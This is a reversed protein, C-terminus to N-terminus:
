AISKILLHEKTVSEKQYKEFLEPYDEKFKKSDFSKKSTELVRTISLRDTKYSKDGNEQMAKLVVDNFKEKFAKIEAELRLYELMAGEYDKVVALGKQEPKAILEEGDAYAQLMREVEPKDLPNIRIMQCSYSHKNVWAVYLEKVERGTQLEFLYKYVSLQLRWEDYHVDSTTKIDGLVINGENDTYVLDIASAINKEDSVLFEAIQPVLGLKAEETRQSLCTDSEFGELAEFQYQKHYAKGTEAARNLMEEDVGDYTHYVANVLPTVGKLQRGGLTYIHLQENFQVSSEKLGLKNM